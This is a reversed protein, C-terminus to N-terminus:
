RALRRRLEDLGDPPGPYKPDMRELTRTVVEAVLLDRLYKKDAPVVYWPAWATSTRELAEEYAATFADWRDREGLDGVSFKWYKAPDELRAALRERQEDRSIHLFFKLITVGNEVLLREFLNIQEYRPRWVNEPVLEHVRVVLVDEYHSRNFIGISGRPPVAQHVRWLFDHALEAPTPAKFGTVLVGQPDLPGFVKRITGDKGSTDRGQLVVLLSRKAEAYLAEQLVDMRETLASVRELAASKGPADDPPGAAEDTLHVRRGSPVPDLTM